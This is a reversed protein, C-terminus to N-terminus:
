DVADEKPPFTVVSGEEAMARYRLIQGELDRVRALAHGLEDTIRANEEKLKKIKGEGAAGQERVANLEHTLADIQLRSQIVDRGVIREIQAM